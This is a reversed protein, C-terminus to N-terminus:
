EFPAGDIVRVTDIYRNVYRGNKRERWSLDIPDSTQVGSIKSEDKTSFKLDNEHVRLDYFGHENPGFIAKVTFQGSQVDDSPSPTNDPRRSTGAGAPPGDGSGGRVPAPAGSDHVKRVEDQSAIGRKTDAALAAVIARGFASTEANELESGKTYPTSGPIGLASHGVGPRPDEPHRFAMAKVTVRSDTHELIVSQLSGEPHKERFEIIREAVTVYDDLNFSM